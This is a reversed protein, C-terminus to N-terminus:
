KKLSAIYAAVNDLAAGKVSAIPKMKGKGSEIAAKTEAESMGAISSKDMAGGAGAVGHCGKCKSNYVAEGAKADGAAFAATVPLALLILAVAFRKM